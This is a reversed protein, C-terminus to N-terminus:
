SYARGKILSAMLSPWTGLDRWGMSVPIVARRPAKEMVAYDISLAPCASFSEENLFIGNQLRTARSLAAYSAGFIEPHQVKLAALYAKASFLFIGSNWYAVGGALCAQAAAKGPKEIFSAVEFAEDTLSAGASIYGYRPSAGAPKIGFTVLWGEKALPAGAAVAQLLAEPRAIVHDSPLVLLLPDDQVEGDGRRRATEVMFHAAAAVAPATGRGQPELFMQQAQPLQQLALPRHRANCVVFPAKLAAVREATHQLLSRGGRWRLFPKPRMETSLPWLRRGAGGALIVPTIENLVSLEFESLM